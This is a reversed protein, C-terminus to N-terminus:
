SAGRGESRRMPRSGPLAGGPVGGVDGGADAGPVVGLGGSADARGRALPREMVVADDGPGYYDRRRAIAGFGEDAYLGVAPANGASVELLLRDLGQSEAWGIARRVLQRGLGRRRWPPAVVVKLLDATDGLGAVSVAGALSSPVHNRGVKGPPNGPRGQAEVVFVAHGPRDLEDLWSAESWPQDFAGDLELLAPLDAATAPRLALPAASGLEGAAVPPRQGGLPRCAPALTGGMGRRDIAPGTM